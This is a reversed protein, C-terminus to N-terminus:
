EVPGVVPHDVNRDNCFFDRDLVFPHGDSYEFFAESIISKGLSYTDIRKTKLNKLQERDGKIEVKWSKTDLETVEVNIKDHDSLVSYEKENKYVAKQNYYANGSTWIPFKLNICNQTSRVKTKLLMEETPYEDFGVIGPTRTNCLFLNNYIRLDGGNNNYFGKLATSHAEHYPTYRIFTPRAKVFGNLLNNFIAVGQSDLLLNCVSLLFNNYVLTPGHSVELFLDETRSKQIVNNCVHMGQSQWDLWIGRITNSIFNHDIVVDIGAHLKIGGTESGQPDDPFVNINKIKNNRIVSNLAGLHGVIGAQGCDHIYNNQVLHSGINDKNWGSNISKIVTEIERTFGTKVFGPKDNYVTMYNNGAANGKGLSIGVCRSHSIECNEIVWGKSWHPGIIGMQLATPPAWQPAAQSIHFGKVSIYDVGTYKPFFCTPRVTVEVVSKKPNVEGFNAYIVTHSDNVEANWSNPKKQTQELNGTSIMKKNDVFVAGLKGRGFMWDGKIDIAFPNFDGFLSNDIEAKWLGDKQKKWQDVVESGKLHVEEGPVAMYVINNVKDLGGNQPSVWERYTGAHVLVSDGALALRAAKSITRFPASVTGVNQDAGQPSVHYQRALSSGSGCLLLCLLIYSTKM